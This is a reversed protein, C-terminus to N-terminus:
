LRSILRSPAPTPPSPTHFSLKRLSKLAGPEFRVHACKTTENGGQKRVELSDSIKRAPPLSSKLFVKSGFTEINQISKMTDLIFPIKRQAYAGEVFNDLALGHNRTLTGVGGGLALGTYGTNSVM